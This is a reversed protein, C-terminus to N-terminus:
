ALLAMGVDAVGGAQQRLGVQRAASDGVLARHVAAAAVAVRLDMAGVVRGASAELTLRAASHASSAGAAAACPSPAASGRSSRPRDMKLVAGERVGLPKSYSHGYSGRGRTETSSPTSPARPSAGSM